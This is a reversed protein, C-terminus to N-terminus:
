KFNLYYTHNSDILNEFIEENHSIVLFAKGANQKEQLWDLTKQISVFDLGNLPEDLVILDVELALTRVLNLRQKQGGSLYKVKKFLFDDNVTDDFLEALRSKLFDGRLRKNKLGDLSEKVSAELNLAEDAHQFVMGIKKGWIYKKWSKPKSDNSFEIGSIEYEFREAQQLGMIIKALTTKGVGSGAKLYVMESQHIYLNSPQNYEADSYITYERDYIRFHKNIKLVESKSSEIGVNQITTKKVKNLWSLYQEPSFYDLTVKGSDTRTLEKFDIHDIMNKHQHMIRSIISYDHTIFLATFAKHSYKDFLLQLFLNRFHNDLSGTPEDFIFLNSSSADSNQLALNIKKFAMALLIRQKEGGSPRYPRPYIGIIKRISANDTTDWLSQLISEEDLNQDISGENLQEEIKFLPNLHSSPEQFVFFGNQMIHQTVPYNLYELYDKGNIKIQLENPDLLGYIVKSIMSKGIGSEGFLFTIKNKNFSFNDIHVLIRSGDSININLGTKSM